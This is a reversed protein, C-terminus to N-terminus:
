KSQLESIVDELYPNFDNLQSQFYYTESIIDSFEQESAELQNRIILQDQVKQALWHAQELSQQLLLIEALQFGAL